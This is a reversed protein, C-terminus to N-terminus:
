LPRASANYASGALTRISKNQKVKVKKLQSEFGSGWMLLGYTLYANVLSYYVTKLHSQPLIHKVSNIAYIGGSIKGRVHQIHDNWNM